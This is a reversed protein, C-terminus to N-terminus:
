QEIVFDSKIHSQIANDILDGREEASTNEPLELVGEVRHGDLEIWYKFRIM